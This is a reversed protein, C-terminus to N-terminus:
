VSKTLTQLDDLIVVHGPSFLNTFGEGDGAAALEPLGMSVLDILNKNDGDERDDAADDDDDDDDGASNDKDKYDEDDDDDEDDNDDDDDDDNDDEEKDRKEEEAEWPHSFHADRENCNIYVVRRM